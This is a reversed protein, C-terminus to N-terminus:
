HGAQTERTMLTHFSEVGDGCRDERGVVESFHPLGLLSHCRSEIRITSANVGEVRKQANAFMPNLFFSCFVQCPCEM